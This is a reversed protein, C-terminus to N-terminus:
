NCRLFAFVYTRSLLPATNRVVPSVLIDTVYKHIKPVLIDEVSFFQM